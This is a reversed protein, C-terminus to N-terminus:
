AGTLYAILVLVFGVVVALTLVGAMIKRKGSKLAFINNLMLLTLGFWYASAILWATQEPNDGLPWGDWYYGRAAYTVAASAFIGGVPLLIATVVVRNALRPLRVQPRRLALANFLSIWAFMTGLFLSGIRVARLWIPVEGVFALQIENAPEEPLRALLTGNAERLELHYNCFEGKPEAPLSASHLDFSGAVRPMPSEQWTEDNGCRYRVVVAFESTDRPTTVRASLLPAEGAPARNVTQHDFLFEALTADLFDSPETLRLQPPALWFLGLTLLFAAVVRAVRM